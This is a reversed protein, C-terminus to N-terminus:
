QQFMMKAHFNDKLCWKPMFFIRSHFWFKFKNSFSWLVLFRMYLSNLIKGIRYDRVSEGQAFFILGSHFWFMFTVLNLFFFRGRSLPPTFIEIAGMSSRCELLELNHLCFNVWLNLPITSCIVSLYLLLLWVVLKIM